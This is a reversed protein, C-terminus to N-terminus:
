RVLQNAVDLLQDQTKIARSALEYGRQADIMDVMASALDVNSAELAGQQVTTGTVAKPAGSAATPAFLNDGVPALTGPSPVDVISLRGVATAGVSVSGDPAISIASADTGKPVTLPPVLREGTSTVIAGGADLGFRGDRTLAVSGDARRVQFFGQGVIAVSLPDGTETLGGQAFSRGVDVPASGAGIPVGQEAQYVLDRFGLRQQKYGTTNVNAIDNALADLRTQQAAMGAAASYIGEPM